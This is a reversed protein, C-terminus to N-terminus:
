WKVTGGWRTTQSDPAQWPESANFSTRIPLRNVNFWFSGWMKFDGEWTEPHHYNLQGEAQTGFVLCPPHGKPISIIHNQAPIPEPTFEYQSHTALLLKPITSKLYFHPKLPPSNKRCVTQALIFVVQQLWEILRPKPLSPTAWGGAKRPSQCATCTM